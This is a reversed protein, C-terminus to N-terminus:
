NTKNFAFIFGLGEAEDRKGKEWPSPVTSKVM